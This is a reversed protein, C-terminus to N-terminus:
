RACKKRMWWGILVMAPDQRAKELEPWIPNHRNGYEKKGGALALVL